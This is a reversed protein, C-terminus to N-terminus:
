GLGDDKLRKGKRGHYRAMVGREARQAKTYKAVMESSKWGGVEMLEPLEAGAASLDQAMGVRGSHGTYGDGLGAEMCIRRVRRGIQSASLGIVKREPDVLAGEPMIARLDEACEPGLLQERGEGEQDTKSKRINILAFGTDLFQLDGWRLEALESRRLMGDRLTSCIAIDLLARKKTEARTEQRRRRGGATRPVWAAGRIREMESDRLPQAQVQPRKDRQALGKLTRRVGPHVAIEQYGASRHKDAIGAWASKLTATRWDDVEFREILYDAIAEPDAPLAVEGQDQCWKEFHAWARAYRQVTSSALADELVDAIRQRRERRSRRPAPVDASDRAVKDDSDPLVILGEAAPTEQSVTEELEQVNVQDVDVLQHVDGADDDDFFSAQNTPIIVRVM